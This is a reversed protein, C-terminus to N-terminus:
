RETTVRDLQEKQEPSVKYVTTSIVEATEYVKIENQLAKNEKDLNSVYRALEKNRKDKTVM